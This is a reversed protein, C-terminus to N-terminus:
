QTFKIKYVASGGRGDEATVEVNGARIRNATVERIWTATNEVWSIRGNSATWSYTLADGDPDSAGTITITTVAGTLQLFQAAEYELKTESVVKVTAPFVPPHNESEPAPTDPAPSAAKEPADQAPASGAGALTNCGLVLCLGVGLLAFKWLRDRNGM